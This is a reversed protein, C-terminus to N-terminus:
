RITTVLDDTTASQIFSQALNNVSGFTDIVIFLIIGIRNKNILQEIDNACFETFGLTNIIVVPPVM